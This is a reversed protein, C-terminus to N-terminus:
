LAKPARRERRPRRADAKLDQRLADHFAMLKSMRASRRYKPPGDVEGQLWKALTNRLLGPMRAIERESLNKRAHLHRIRDIMDM